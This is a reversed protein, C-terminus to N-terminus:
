SESRSIDISLNEAIQKLLFLNNSDLSKLKTSILKSIRKFEHIDLKEGNTYNTDSNFLYDHFDSSAQNEMFYVEDFSHWEGNESAQGKQHWLQQNEFDIMTPTFETRNSVLLCKYPFKNM